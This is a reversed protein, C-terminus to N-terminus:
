LTFHYVVHFTHRVGIKTSGLHHEVQKSFISYGNEFFFTGVLKDTYMQMFPTIFAHTYNM